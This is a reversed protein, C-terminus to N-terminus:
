ESFLSEVAAAKRRRTERDVEFSATLRMEALYHAVIEVPDDDATEAPPPAIAAPNFFVGLLTADDDDVRSNYEFDGLAWVANAVGPAYSAGLITADDDNVVGDLNADGTRTYAILV